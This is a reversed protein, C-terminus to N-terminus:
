RCWLHLVDLVCLKLDSSLLLAVNPRGWLGLLPDCGGGSSSSRFLFSVFVPSVGAAASRDWFLASMGSIYCGALVAAEALVAAKSAAHLCVSGGCALVGAAASRDWFLAGMGSISCGALVAAEAM